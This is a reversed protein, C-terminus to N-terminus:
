FINNSLVSFVFWFFGEWTDEISYYHSMFFTLSIGKQMTCVILYVALCRMLMM